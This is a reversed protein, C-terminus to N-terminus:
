ALVDYFTIFHDCKFHPVSEDTSIAQAIKSWNGQYYIAYDCIKERITM